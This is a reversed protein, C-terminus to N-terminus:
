CMVYMLLIDIHCVKSSYLLGNKLTNTVDDGTRKMKANFYYVHKSEAKYIQM